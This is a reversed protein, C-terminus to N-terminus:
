SRRRTAIPNCANCRHLPRKFRLARPLVTAVWWNSHPTRLTSHPVPIFLCLRKAFTRDMGCEVNRM